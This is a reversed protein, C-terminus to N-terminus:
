GRSVTFRVDGQANLVVVSVNRSRGDRATCSFRRGPVIPEGQPCSVRAGDGLRRAIDHQVETAIIAAASFAVGGRGDTQRVLVPVREGGALVIQCRLTGGARYAVGSPCKAGLIATHVTRGFSGHILTQELRASSLAPVIAFRDDSRQTVVVEVPDEGVSGTRCRFTAGTRKPVDRPCSVDRVRVGEVVSFRHEILREVRGADVHGGSGCGLVAVLPLLVVARRM